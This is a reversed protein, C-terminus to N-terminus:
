TRLGPGMTALVYLRGPVPHGRETRIIEPSSHVVTFGNTAALSRVYADSHSYRGTQDLSFGEGPGGGEVSFAFRGGAILVRAAQALVSELKGV